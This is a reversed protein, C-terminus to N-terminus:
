QRLAKNRSKFASKSIPKVIIIEKIFKTNVDNPKIFKPLLLLISGIIFFVIRITEHYNIANDLYLSEEHEQSYIKWDDVLYPFNIAFFVSDNPHNEAYQHSNVKWLDDLKRHIKAYDYEQKDNSISTNFIQVFTSLLVIILGLGELINLNYQKL